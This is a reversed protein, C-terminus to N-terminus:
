APGRAELDRATPSRPVQDADPLTGLVRDGLHLSVGYWYRENKYHHLRHHKIRSRWWWSKPAWPVHCAYHTWEYALAIVTTSLLGTFAFPLDPSLLLWAATVLAAGAWLTPLPIFILPLHPPDKHHARHDRAAVTDLTLGLVQRPRWHLLFVHILWETFPHVALLVVPILAHWPSWAGLWLRIALVVVLFTALIRPSPFRWFTSVAQSLPWPGSAPSAPSPAAPSPAAPTASM